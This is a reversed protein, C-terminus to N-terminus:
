LSSRELVAGFPTSKYKKFDGSQLRDLTKERLSAYSDEIWANKKFTIGHEPVFQGVYFDHFSFFHSPDHGLKERLCDVFTFDGDRVHQVLNELDEIQIFVPPRVSTNLQPVLRRMRKVFREVLLRSALGFGLIPELVIV